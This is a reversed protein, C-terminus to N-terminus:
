KTKDQTVINFQVKKKPGSYQRIGIHRQTWNNSLNVQTSSKQDGTNQTQQASVSIQADSNEVINKSNSGETGLVEDTPLHAPKLREISINTPLGNMDVTFLRDNLREIVRHPGSYPSDLTEKRIGERRVFVHTCTHLEKFCFTKRRGHYAAPVPRLEQMHIRFDEFFFNPDHPPKEQTFFEGPIRLTTGYLYEAPSAKLDKYCTRLRLVTPLIDIWRQNEHCKIATKLSRHWREVLGNSAPHYATTRIQKGGILRVLATFLRSEFESGQDTTVIKPSGYRAIWNRYFVQAVTEAQHNKIPIAEPKARQCQICFKAWDRIDKKMSLWIYRQSIVKTTIKGSSHNLNHFVDFVQRRLKAFARKQLKLSSQNDKLLGNLEEDELQTKALEEFNIISPIRLADIRSM